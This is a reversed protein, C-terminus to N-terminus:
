FRDMERAVRELHRARITDTARNMDYLALYRMKDPRCVNWVARTVSKRPPDGALFRAPGRAAM